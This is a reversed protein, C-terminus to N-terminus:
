GGAFIGGPFFIYVFCFLWVFRLAMRAEGGDLFVRM